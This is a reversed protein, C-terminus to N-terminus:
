IFVKDNELGNYPGIKYEYVLTDEEMSVYNHGGRLTVSCDGPSLVEEHIVTDDVDYLIAKVKGRICIWSEQTINSYRTNEIHKHARFTKDKPMTFCAAQIFENPPVIDTRQQKVDEVKQIIHLLMDPYLKSYIKKSM